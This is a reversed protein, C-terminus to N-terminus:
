IISQQTLWEVVKAHPVVRGVTYEAWADVELHAEHATDPESAFIPKTKDPRDVDGQLAATYWLDLESRAVALAAARGLSLSGDLATSNAIV